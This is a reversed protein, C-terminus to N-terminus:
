AFGASRFAAISCVILFYIPQWDDGGIAFFVILIGIVAGGFYLASRAAILLLVDGPQQPFKIGNGRWHVAFALITFAAAIAIAGGVLATIVVPARIPPGNRATRDFWLVTSILVATAAMWALFHHIRLPPLASQNVESSLSVSEISESM